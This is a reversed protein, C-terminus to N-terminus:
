EEELISETYLGLWEVIGQEDLDGGAVSLMMKVVEVQSATIDLDNMGLFTYMAVFAMRKNGDSYGHSTALGYCYSAALEL